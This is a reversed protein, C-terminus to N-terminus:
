GSWHLRYKERDPQALVWDITEIVIEAAQIYWDFEEDEYVLHVCPQNFQVGPIAGIIKFGDLYFNGERCMYAGHANKRERQSQTVRIADAETATPAGEMFLPVASITDVRLRPAVSLKRHLEVAVDRALTWDPAIIYEDSNGFVDGLEMGIAARTIHNFGGSNYSSRFYGIKFYHEPHKASPLEIEHKRTKDDGWEDLGAAENREKVAARAQEKQGETLEEYKVGPAVQEWSQESFQEAAEEAARTAEFDDYRYLYVDLGM